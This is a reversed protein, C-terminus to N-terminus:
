HRLERHHRLEDLRGLLHVISDHHQAFKWHFVICGFAKLLEFMLKITDGKGQNFVFVLIARLYWTMLNSRVFM